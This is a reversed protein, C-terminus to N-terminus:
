YSGQPNVGPAGQPNTKFLDFVSCQGSIGLASILLKGPPNVGPVGQPNTKFLDVM